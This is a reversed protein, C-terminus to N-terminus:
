DYNAEQSDIALGDFIRQIRKQNAASNAALTWLHSVSPHRNLASKVGTLDIARKNLGDLPKSFNAPQSIAEIQRYFEASDWGAGLGADAEICLAADEHLETMAQDFFAEIQSYEGAVALFQNFSESFRSRWDTLREGVQQMAAEHSPRMHQDFHAVAAQRKARKLTIGAVAEAEAQAKNEAQKIGDLAAQLKAIKDRSENAIKHIESQIQQETM